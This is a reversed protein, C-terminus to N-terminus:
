VRVQKPSSSRLAHTKKAVVAVDEEAVLVIVPDRTAVFLM